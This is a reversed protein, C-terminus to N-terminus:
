ELRLLGPKVLLEKEYTGQNVQRIEDITLIQMVFMIGQVWGLWRNARDVHGAEALIKAEKAVELCGKIQSWAAPVRIEASIGHTPQVLVELLTIYNDLAKVMGQITLECPRM